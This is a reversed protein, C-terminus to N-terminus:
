TTQEKVIRSVSSKTIGLRRAVDTPRLGTALLQLVRAKDILQRQPM